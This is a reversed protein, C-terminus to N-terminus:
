RPSWGAGPRCLVVWLGAGKPQVELDAPIIKRRPGKTLHGVHEVAEHSSLPDWTARFETPTGQPSLRVQYAADEGLHYVLDQRFRALDPDTDLPRRPKLKKRKWWPM